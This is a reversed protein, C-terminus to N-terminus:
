GTPHGPDCRARGLYPDDPPSAQLDRSQSPPVTTASNKSTPRGRETWPFAPVVRAAQRGGQLIRIATPVGHDDAVVRPIQHPSAPATVVSVQCGETVGADSRAIVDGCLTPCGSRPCLVPRCPKRCYRNGVSKPHRAGRREAVVRREPVNCRSLLKDTAAQQCRTSSSDKM